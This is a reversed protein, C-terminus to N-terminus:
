GPLAVGGTLPQDKKPGAHDLENHVTAGMWALAEMTMQNKGGPFYHVTAGMWALAEMTMQNKGGPFYHGISGRPAHAHDAVERMGFNSCV